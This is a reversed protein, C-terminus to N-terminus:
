VQLSKDKVSAHMILLNLPLVIFIIIVIIITTTTTTIIIIIFFVVFSYCWCSM